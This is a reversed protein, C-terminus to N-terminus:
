QWEEERERLQKKSRKNVPPGSDDVVVRRRGMTIVVTLQAGSRKIVNQSLKFLDLLLLLLRSLTLSSSVGLERRGTLRHPGDDVDLNDAECEEGEKKGKGKEKKKRKRMMLCYSLSEAAKM